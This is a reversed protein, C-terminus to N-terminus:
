EQEEIIELKITDTTWKDNAIPSILVELDRSFKDIDGGLSQFTAPSGSSELLEGYSLSDLTALAKVTETGTPAGVRINEIKIEDGAEVFNQPQMKNPFLLHIKGSTGIDFIYLYCDKDPEATFTIMEGLQFREKGASLTLKFPSRSNDLRAINELAVQNKIHAIICSAVEDVFETIEKEKLDAALRQVEVKGTEIDVLRASISHRKKLNSYIEGLLIKEAGILKGAQIATNEDITGTQSLAHEKLVENLKNREVVTICSAKVLKEQIEAPILSALKKGESQEVQSKQDFDIIILSKSSQSFAITSLSYTFALVILFVFNKYM